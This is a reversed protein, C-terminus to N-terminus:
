FLVVIFSGAALVLLGVALIQWARIGGVSMGFIFAPSQHLALLTSGAYAWVASSQLVGAPGVLSPLAPEAGDPSFLRYATTGWYALLNGPLLGGGQNGNVWLQWLADAAKTEV